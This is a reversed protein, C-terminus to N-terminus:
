ADIIAIKHGPPISFQHRGSGILECTDDAVATPTPGSTFRINGDTQIVVIDLNKATAATAQSSGSSTFTENSTFGVNEIPIGANMARKYTIQVTAM